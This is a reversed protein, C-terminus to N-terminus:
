IYKYKYSSFLRNKKTQRKQFHREHFSAAIPRPVRSLRAVHSGNRPYIVRTVNEDVGTVRLILSFYKSHSRRNSLMRPPLM